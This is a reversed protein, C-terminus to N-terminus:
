GEEQTIQRQIFLDRLTACVDFIERQMAVIEQDLGAAFSETAKSRDVDFTAWDKPLIETKGRSPSQGIRAEELFGIQQSLGHLSRVIQARDEDLPIWGYRIDRGFYDAAAEYM